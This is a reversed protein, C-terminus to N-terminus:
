GAVYGVWPNTAQPKVQSSAGVGGSTSISNSSSSASTTYMPSRSFMYSYNPLAVNPRLTVLGTTFNINGVVIEPAESVVLPASTDEENVVLAKFSLIGSSYRPNYQDGESYYLPVTGSFTGKSVDVLSSPSVTFSIEGLMNPTLYPSYGNAPRSYQRTLSFETGGLPLKALYLRVEGTDYKIVGTADGSLAGQGNDTVTYTSEGDTWDIRNGGAVLPMPKNQEDLELAFTFDVYAPKVKLDGRNFHDVPNSWSLLIGTDVDPQAGCTLLLTGTQYNLSGTGFSADAGSLRGSGDDYLYYVKRQAVFSVVLSGPAPLPLLTGIYNYGRNAQTVRFLITHPNSSPVGCPKFKFTITAGSSVPMDQTWMIEGNQYNVTGVVTTGQEDKIQGGVDKYNKSNYTFHLSGPFIPSGIYIDQTTRIPVTVSLSVEGNDGQVLATSFGNVDLDLMPTEAQASPVLQTFISQAKVVYDGVSAPAKLPSVSYYEANDSARTDKIIGTAANKQKVNFVDLYDNGSFDYRLSDSITFVDVTFPQDKGNIEIMVLTSSTRETLRIFQAKETGQGEDSILVYTSNVELTEVNAGKRCVQIVRQGMFHDNLLMARSVSSKTLYSEIRNRADTRRDTHSTTKFLSVSVKPNLPPKVVLASFGFATDADLSDIKAYVKRMSVDGYAEDVEGTDSFIENSKKTEIVKTTIPGGGDDEDLMVESAYMKLDKEKIPM